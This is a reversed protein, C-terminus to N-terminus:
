SRSIELQAIVQTRLDLFPPSNHTIPLTLASKPEVELKTHVLVLDIRLCMMSLNCLLKLKTHSLPYLSVFNGMIIEWKDIHDEEPDFMVVKEGKSLTLERQLM